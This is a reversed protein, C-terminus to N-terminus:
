AEFDLEDEIEIQTFDQDDQDDEGRFAKYRDLQGDPQRDVDRALRRGLGAPIGLKEWKEENEDGKWGQIIDTSYLKDLLNNKAEELPIQDRPSSRRKQWEIYEEIDGEIPSSYRTPDPGSPACSVSRSISRNYNLANRSALEALL